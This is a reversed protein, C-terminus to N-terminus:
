LCVTLLEVKPATVTAFKVSLQGRFGPGKWSHAWSLGNGVFSSAENSLRLLKVCFQDGDLSPVNFVSCSEICSTTRPIVM